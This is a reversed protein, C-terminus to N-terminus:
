CHSKYVTHIHEAHRPRCKPGSDTRVMWHQEMHIGNRNVSFLNSFVFTHGIRPANTYYSSTIMHQAIKHIEARTRTQTHTYIPTKYGTIECAPVSHEGGLNWAREAWMQPTKSARPRQASEAFTTGYGVTRSHVSASLSSSKLLLLVWHATIRM